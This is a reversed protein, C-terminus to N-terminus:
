PGITAGREDVLDTLDTVDSAAPIEIRVRTGFDYFDFRQEVASPGGPVELALKQALRRVRGDDDLWVDVPIRSAKSRGILGDIADRAAARDPESVLDPYRRLDVTARYHTTAVGRIKEEGVTEVDGSVANLQGLAQGPDQGPQTLASVDVGAARNLQASDVKVWKRGQGLMQSLQPSHTYVAFRDTIVETTLDGQDFAGVVLDPGDTVKLTIHSRRRQTDMVGSGTTTLRGAGPLTLTQRLAIRMGGSAATAEAAEAIATPSLDEAGCASLVPAFAVVLM